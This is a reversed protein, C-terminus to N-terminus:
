ALVASDSDNVGLTELPKDDLELVELVNRYEKNGKGEMKFTFYIKSGRKDKLKAALTKSFTGFLLSDNVKFTFPKGEGSIFIATIIGTATKHEGYIGYEIDQPIPLKVPQVTEKKPQKMQCPFCLDKDFAKRGRDLVQDYSLDDGGAISVAKIPRTCSECGLLVTSASAERAENMECEADIVEAPRGAQHMEEETYVGSLEAPFAKRLALAEACKGLMLHPMKKWMFGLYEGPFYQSWRASATFPCKQGDVMKYVTVTAKTPNEEDDFIPDDNGAYKGTRDAILRYGDIGTIITMTFSGDKNKRRQFYIQKALPDLGTKRCQHIFIDFEDQTAGKAINRKILDLKSEWEYVKPLVAQISPVLSQTAM